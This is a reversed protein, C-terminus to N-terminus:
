ATGTGKILIYATGTEAEGIGVFAVNVVRVHESGTGEWARAVTVDSYLSANTAQINAVYFAAIGTLTITVTAHDYPVASLILSIEKNGGVIQLSKSGLTGHDSTVETTLTAITDVQNWSNGFGYFTASGLVGTDSSAPTVSSCGV